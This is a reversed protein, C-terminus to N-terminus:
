RWIRTAVVLTVGLVVLLAGNAMLYLASGAGTSALATSGSSTTVPVYSALDYGFFDTGPTVTHPSSVASPGVRNVARFLLQYTTGNTLGTITLPSSISAPSRSIWTAGQDMSYEINLTPATASAFEWFYAAAQMNGPLVGIVLIEPVDDPIEQVTSSWAGLGALNRAAVAIDYSKGSTLRKIICSRQAGDTQCSEALNVNTPDDTRFAVAAYETIASGGDSAPAQWSVGLESGSIVTVTVNQPASPAIVPTVPNSAASPESFGLDNQAVVTFQYTTGLTLGTVTCSTQQGGTTTCTRGDPSSTVRYGTIPIGGTDAPPFWSVQVTEGLSFATVSEPAGPVTATLNQIQVGRDSVNVAGFAGGGSLAIVQPATMLTAQDVFSKQAWDFSLITANATLMVSSDLPAFAFENPDTQLPTILDSETLGTTEFLRQDPASSGSVLLQTEDTNLALGLVTTSSFPQITEVPIGPSQLPLRMLKLQNDATTGAVYAVLGDRSTVVDAVKFDSVFRNTITRNALDVFVIQDAAYAVLLNPAATFKIRTLDGDVLDTIKELSETGLHPDLRWLSGGDASLVYVDSGTLAVEADRATPWMDTVDPLSVESTVPHSGTRTQVSVAGATDVGAVVNADDSLSLQVIAPPPIVDPDAHAIGPLAVAGMAFVGVVASALLSFRM